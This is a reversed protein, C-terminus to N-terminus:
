TNALMNPGIGAFLFDNLFRCFFRIIQNSCCARETVLEVNKHTFVPQQANCMLPTFGRLAVDEDLTIRLLSAGIVNLKVINM